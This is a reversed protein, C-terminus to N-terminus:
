VPSSSHYGIDSLLNWTVYIVGWSASASFGQMGPCDIHKSHFTPLSFAIRPLFLSSSSSRFISMPYELLSQHLLNPSRPLILLHFSVERVAANWRSNMWTGKGARSGILGGCGRGWGLVTYTKSQPQKLKSETITILCESWIFSSPSLTLEM